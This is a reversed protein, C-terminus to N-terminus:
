LSFTVFEVKPDRSRKISPSQANPDQDPSHHTSPKLISASKVGVRLVGLNCTSLDQIHVTM